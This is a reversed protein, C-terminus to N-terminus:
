SDGRKRLGNAIAKQRYYSEIRSNEIVLFRPIEEGRRLYERVTEEWPSGPRHTLTSLQGGTYRGYEDFIDNLFEADKSDIEPKESLFSFQPAAKDIQKDGYGQFSFYVSPIVPGFKWAQVPENILPIETIGLAWGHALFTLKGVQMPTLPRGCSIGRDVFYNAIDIASYPMVNKKVRPPAALIFM